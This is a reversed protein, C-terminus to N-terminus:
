AKGRYAAMLGQQELWAAADANAARVLDHRGEAECRAILRNLFMNGKATRSASAEEDVLHKLDHLELRLRARREDLAARVDPPCNVGDAFYARRVQAQEFEVQLLERRLAKYRTMTTSM